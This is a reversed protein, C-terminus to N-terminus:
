ADSVEAGIVRCEGETSKKDYVTSRLSVLREALGLLYDAPPPAVVPPANGGLGLAKAGLEAARLALNDPINQMPQSLKHALVELSRDTLGRFKEELTMTLAPDVIEERRNLLRAKFADSSMITSVWAATYGFQIALQNQSIGPHAIIMDIMADHSYRVKQPPKAGVLAKDAPNDAINWNDDDTPNM